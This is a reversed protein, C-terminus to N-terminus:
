RLRDAYNRPFGRALIKGATRDFDYDVGRVEVDEGNVDWILYKARNDRDRPQGVSGCNFIYKRSQDLRIRGVSLKERKVAGDIMTVMRLLHTHGVFFRSANSTAFLTQIVKDSQRHLYRFVNDKPYGHVFHGKGVTMYKPLTMCYHRNTATLLEETIENNEAALFNFWKRGRGDALAYEHNGMISEFGNSRIFDVVGDPDPGYGINDGLCIVSEVDQRELDGAVAKLAELNGHIDSLIAVRM